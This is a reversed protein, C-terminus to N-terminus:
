AATAPRPVAEWTAHRLDADRTLAFGTQWGGGEPDNFEYTMAFTAGAGPGAPNAAAARPVPRVSTNWLKRQIVSANRPFLNPQDTRLAVATDWEAMDTSWFVSVVTNNGSIGWPVATAFVFLREQGSAPDDVVLANGLGYGYGFPASRAGTRPNTFRLYGPPQPANPYSSANINDYYRGGQICEFLWLENKWVLPTSEALIGLDVSGLREVAHSGALATLATFALALM